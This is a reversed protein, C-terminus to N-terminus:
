CYKGFAKLFITVLAGGLGSALAFMLYSVPTNEQVSGAITHGLGLISPDVVMLIGIFSILMLVIIKMNPYEKLLLPGLLVVFFTNTNNLVVFQQPPVLKQATMFLCFIPAGIAGRAAFILRMKTDKPWLPIKFVKYCLFVGFVLSMFGQMQSIRITHTEDIKRYSKKKLIEFISTDPYKRSAFKMIITQLSASFATILVLIRGLREPHEDRYKKLWEFM